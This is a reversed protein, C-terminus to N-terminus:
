APELSPITATDATALGLSRAHSAFLPEVPHDARVVFDAGIM